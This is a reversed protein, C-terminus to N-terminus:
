TQKEGHVFKEALEKLAEKNEPRPKGAGNTKLDQNFYQVPTLEPSCTPLLIMKKKSSGAVLRKSTETLLNDIM